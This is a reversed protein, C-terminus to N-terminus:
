APEDHSVQDPRVDRGQVLELLETWRGPSGESSPCRPPTTGLGPRHGTPSRPPQGPPTLEGAHTTNGTPPRFRTRPRQAAAPGRQARHQKGGGPAGDDGAGGTGCGARRRRRGTTSVPERPRFPTDACVPGATPGSRPNRGPPRARTTIVAGPPRSFRDRGRSPAGEPPSTVMVVVVSCRVTRGST